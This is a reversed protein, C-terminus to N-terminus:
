EVVVRDGQEPSKRIGRATDERIDVIFAKGEVMAWLPCQLGNATGVAYVVLLM